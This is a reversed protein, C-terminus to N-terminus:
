PADVMRALGKNSLLSYLRVVAGSSCFVPQKNNWVALDNGLEWKGMGGTLAVGPAPTPRAISTVHCSHKNTSAFVYQLSVADLEVTRLMM